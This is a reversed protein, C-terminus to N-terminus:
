EKDGPGYNMRRRWKMISNYKFIQSPAGAYGETLM